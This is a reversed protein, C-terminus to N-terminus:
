NIAHAQNQPLATLLRSFSFDLKYITDSCFFVALLETLGSLYGLLGIDFFFLLTNEDSLPM